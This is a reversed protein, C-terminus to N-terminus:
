RADDNWQVEPLFFHEFLVLSLLFYFALFFRLRTERLRFAKLQREARVEEEYLDM